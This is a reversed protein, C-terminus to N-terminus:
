EAFTDPSYQPLPFAPRAAEPCDAWRLLGLRRLDLALDLLKGTDEALKDAIDRISCNGDALDLLRQWEPRIAKEATVDGAAPLGASGRTHAHVPEPCLGALDPAEVEVDGLFLRDLRSGYLCDLADEPREVIPMGRLNFSTNLVVPLGTQQEFAELLPRFPGPSDGAVTQVRCTGDVHVVESIQQQQDPLVPCVMLMFPSEEAPMDFWQHAREALVSGAFPRFSERFKVRANLRDKMGPIGPHCLISRGGLARPGFEARDQFWGIIEGRAIAAAAHQAMVEWAAGGVNTSDGWIPRLGLYESVEIPPLTTGVSGFGQVDAHSLGADALARGSAQQILQLRTKEPVRGCDSLAVGAVAVRRDGM